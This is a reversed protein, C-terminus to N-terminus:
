FQRGKTLNQTFSPKRLWMGDAHVEQIFKFFEPGNIEIYKDNDTNSSLTGLYFFSHRFLSQISLDRFAEHTEAKSLCPKFVILSSHNVEM